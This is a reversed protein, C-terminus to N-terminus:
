ARIPHSRCEWSRSPVPASHLTQSRMRSTIKVSTLKGLIHRVTATHPAAPLSPSLVPSRAQDNESQPGGDGAESVPHCTARTCRLRRSAHIEPHPPIPCAQRSIGRTPKLGRRGGTQHGWEVGTPKGRWRAPVQLVPAWRIGGQITGEVVGVRCRSPSETFVDSCM